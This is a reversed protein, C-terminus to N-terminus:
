GGTKTNSPSAWAWAATMTMTSGFVWVGPNDMEVIVDAREGVDLKRVDATVQTPVPNGDPAVVRFCHGSEGRRLTKTTTRWFNEM